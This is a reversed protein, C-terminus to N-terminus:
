AEIKWWTELAQNINKSDFVYEPNFLLWSLFLNCARRQAETFKDLRKQWWEVSNKKSALAYVLFVCVESHPEGL